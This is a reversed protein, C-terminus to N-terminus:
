YKSKGPERFEFQESRQVSNQDLEDITQTQELVQNQDQGDVAEVVKRPKEVETEIEAQKPPAPTHSELKDGGINLNIRNMNENVKPISEYEEEIRRRSSTSVLPEQDNSTNLQKFPGRNLISSNSAKSKNSQQSVNSRNKSKVLINPKTMIGSKKM